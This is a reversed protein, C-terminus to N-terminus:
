PSGGAQVAGQIAAEGFAVTRRFLFILDERTPKTCARCGPERYALLREVLDSFAGHFAAFDELLPEKLRPFMTQPNFPCAACKAAVDRRSLRPFDPAPPRTTFRDLLRALDLLGSLIALSAKGYQKEHYHSLVISEIGLEQTLDLLVGRRCEPSRLDAALDPGEKCDVILRRKSPVVEYRSFAM